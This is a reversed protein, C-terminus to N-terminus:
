EESSWEGVEERVRLAGDSVRKSASSGSMLKVRSAFGESTTMVCLVITNQLVGLESARQVSVSRLEKVRM